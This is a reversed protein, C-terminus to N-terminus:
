LYMSAIVPENPLTDMSCDDEKDPMGLFDCVAETDILSHGLMHKTLTDAKSGKYNCNTYPCRFKLKNPHSTNIHRNASQRNKFQKGCGMCQPLKKKINPCLDM